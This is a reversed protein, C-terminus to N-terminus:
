WVLYMTAFSSFYLLVENVPVAYLMHIALLSKTPTMKTKRSEIFHAVIGILFYYYLCVALSGHQRRHGAGPVAHGRRCFRSEAFFVRATACIRGCPKCKCDEATGLMSISSRFCTQDPSYM